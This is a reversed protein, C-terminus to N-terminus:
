RSWTPPAADANQWANSSFSDAPRDPLGNCASPNAPDSCRLLAHIRNDVGGCSTSGDCTGAFDEVNSNDATPEDVSSLAVYPPVGFVRLVIRRTASSIAAGAANSATATLIAAVRQEGVGPNQQDNLAVVNGSSTNQTQGALAVTTSVSFACPAQACAPIPPGLTPAVLPTSTGAGSQEATVVQAAISEMVDDQARELGIAVYRAAVHRVSTVIGAATVELWTLGLLAALVLCFLAYLYV